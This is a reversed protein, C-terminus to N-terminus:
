ADGMKEDMMRMMEDEEDGVVDGNKGGGEGSGVLYKRADERGLV